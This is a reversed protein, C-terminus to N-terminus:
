GIYTSSPIESLVTQASAIQAQTSMSCSSSKSSPLPELTGLPHSGDVALVELARM